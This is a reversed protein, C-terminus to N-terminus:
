VIALLSTCTTMRTINTLSHCLEEKKNDADVLLRQRLMMTLGMLTLSVLTHIHLSTQIQSLLPNTLILQRKTNAEKSDTKKKVSLLKQQLQERKFSELLLPTFTDGTLFTTVKTFSSDRGGGRSLRWEVEEVCHHCVIPLGTKSFPQLTYSHSFSRLAHTVLIHRQSESTKSESLGNKKLSTQSDLAHGFTKRELKERDRYHNYHSLREQGREKWQQRKRQQWM